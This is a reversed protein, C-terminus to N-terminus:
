IRKKFRSDDIGFWLHDPLIPLYPRIIIKGTEPSKEPMMKPNVICLDPNKGYKKHYYAAATKVKIALSTKKDNDFWMM